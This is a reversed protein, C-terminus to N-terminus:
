LNHAQVVERAARLGSRLAGEIYGAWETSTETSAWHIRGCPERLAHGYRTRVGPGMTGVYGHTWVERTWDNDQYGIPNAAAAGFFRVLSAIVKDRRVEPGAASMELARPGEIFALLAAGEDTADEMVIGVVDDDTAVQGTFGAERWFPTAYVVVAKIVAGMAVRQHLGDRAAPLHPEYQIRAAPGPPIAVIVGRATFDGKDTVVRVGAKDQLIKRVPAGLVVRDGLLRATGEAIQHMGGKFKADLIGDRVAMLHALGEGSRLADLFWLYSVQSAEVAWAGRPVLRAFARGSATHLNRAIWTELTQADWEAARRASWPADAPVTNMDKDWRGQLRALEVLGLFPMKPTDGSFATLKGLLELVTKGSAYQQYTEIGLAKAQDRLVTHRSGVWQGGLDAVRGAVEAAKLRGGVRDDAELVIVSLGSEHIEQAAKLGACGAGVVIVDASTESV